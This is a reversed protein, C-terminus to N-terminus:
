KIKMLIFGVIVVFLGCYQIGSIKQASGFYLMGALYVVFFIVDYLAGDFLINKSYKSVIPWLQFVAGYIFLILIIKTNNSNNNLVSLKAHGLSILLICPIWWYNLM